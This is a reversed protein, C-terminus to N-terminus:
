CIPEPSIFGSLRSSRVANAAARLPEEATGDRRYRGPRVEEGDQDKYRNQQQEGRRRHLSRLFGNREPKLGNRAHPCAEGNGAAKSASSETMAPYRAHIRPPAFRHCYGFRPVNVLVGVGLETM